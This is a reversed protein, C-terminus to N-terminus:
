PSMLGERIAFRALGVRDHIDLKAMINSSHAAVTKPSIHLLHAIDKKSLGQAICRLVDMERQTLTELRTADRGAVEPGKVGITLRSRVEDSFFTNGRAIQRLAEVVRAPSENKTIYGAANHRLAQEILGDNWYASLFVIRTGPLQRRIRDAADFCSMGPMNIDMLVVDPTLHAVCDVAGQADVATGIVELDDEASLRHALTERLLAHDDVLLIKLRDSM